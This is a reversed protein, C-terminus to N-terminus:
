DEKKPAAPLPAVAPCGHVQDGEVWLRILMAILQKMEGRLREPTQRGEALHIADKVVEGAEEAIKSIVYNPQPFKAMAKHAELRADNVLGDFSDIPQWEGGSKAAALASELERSAQEAILKNEASNCKWQDVEAELERVRAEVTALQAATFYPENDRSTSHTKRGDPTLYGAPELAERSENTTTM